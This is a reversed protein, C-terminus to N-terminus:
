ATAPGFVRVLDAELDKPYMEVLVSPDQRGGEYGLARLQRIAKRLGFLTYPGSRVGAQPTWEQLECDWTLIRYKPRPM